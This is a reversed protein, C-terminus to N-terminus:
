CNRGFYRESNQRELRVSTHFQFQTFSIDLQNFNYGSKVAWYDLKAISEIYDEIAEVCERSSSRNEELVRRLSLVSSSNILHNLSSSVFQELLKWSKLHSEKTWHGTFNLLILLWIILIKM